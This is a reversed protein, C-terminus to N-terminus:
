GHQNGKAAPHLGSGVEAGQQQVLVAGGQQVALLPAQVALPLEHVVLHPLLLLQEHVVVDVDVDPRGTRLSDDVQRKGGGPVMVSRHLRRCCRCAKFFM